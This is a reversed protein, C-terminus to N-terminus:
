PLEVVEGQGTSGIARWVVLDVNDSFFRVSGDAMTGQVGGSHYSRAFNRLDSGGGIPTCPARLFNDDKCDYIQDAITTNPSELTTFGYSGHPGGGWYGGAGGWSVGSPGSPSKGRIISESVMITNSTGDIVTAMDTRSNNCFMGNLSQSNRTMLTNGACVVYNGQFGDGNSRRGGGGGFGPSMPDSPCMLIDIVADKLEPPTDMVWQGNWAQYQEFLNNQEIFPLTQQMWTDRRHYTGSDFYGYPFKLFTDHYNHLALGINKLNNKCQTRRAAARAQQVAPLLLAILIAIIAIVVLLEILTFGRFSRQKRDM